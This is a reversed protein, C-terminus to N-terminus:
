ALIVDHHPARTTGSTSESTAVALKDPVAVNAMDCINGFASTVGAVSSNPVTPGIVTKRAM